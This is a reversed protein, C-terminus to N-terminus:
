RSLAVRIANCLNRTTAENTDNVHGFQHHYSSAPRTEPRGLLSNMGTDWQEKIEETWDGAHFILVLACATELKEERSM